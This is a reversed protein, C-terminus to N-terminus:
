PRPTGHDHASAPGDAAAPASAPPAPEGGHHAHGGGGAAANAARWDGNADPECARYGEFASRYTVRPASEVPPDAAFAPRTAVGLLGVVVCAAGLARPPYRHLSTDM